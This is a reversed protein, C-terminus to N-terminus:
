NCLVVDSDYLCHFVCLCICFSQIKIVCLGQSLWQHRRADLKCQKLKASRSAQLEFWDFKILVGLCM